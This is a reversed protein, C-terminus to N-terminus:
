PTAISNEGSLQVGGAASNRGAVVVSITYAIEPDMGAIVEAAFEPRMRAIFGASFEPDMKEFLSAADRPKMNEYISTLRGLDNEAAVDAISLTQELAMKASELEELQAEIDKRRAELEASEQIISQEQEDLRIAREELAALAAATHDLDSCFLSGAPTEAIALAASGSTVRLVAVLVM